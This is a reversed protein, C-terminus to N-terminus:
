VNDNEKILKEYLDVAFGVTYVDPRIDVGEKILEHTLQTIEPVSLGMAKLEESRKFIEAVTGQMALTGKNMVLVTNALKAVDEMSHSVFIITLEKNIQHLKVLQSLIEDRGKPDLGATPEDLILVRPKM